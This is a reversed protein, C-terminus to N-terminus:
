FEDPDAAERANIDKAPETAKGNFFDPQGLAARMMRYLRGRPDLRRTTRVVEHSPLLVYHKSCVGATIGSFGAMAGHVASHGLM